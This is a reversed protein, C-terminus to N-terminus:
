QEATVDTPSSASREGSALGNEIASDAHLVDPLPTFGIKRRAEATEGM